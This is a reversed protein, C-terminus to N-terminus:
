HRGTPRSPPKQRDRADAARSAGPGAGGLRGKEEAEEDEKVRVVFGRLVWAASLGIILVVAVGGSIFEAAQFFGKEGESFAGLAHKVLAFPLMLVAVALSARAWGKSRLFSLNYPSM